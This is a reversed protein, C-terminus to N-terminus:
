ARLRKRDLLKFKSISMRIDLAVDLRGPRVRYTWEDNEWTRQVLQNDQSQTWFSVVPFVLGFVLCLAYNPFSTILTILFPLFFSFTGLSLHTVSGHAVMHHNARGPDVLGSWREEKILFAIKNKGEQEKM